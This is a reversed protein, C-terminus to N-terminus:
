GNNKIKGELEVIIKHWAEDNGPHKITIIEKGVSKHEFTLQYPKLGSKDWGCPNLLVLFIKSQNNSFRELAKPIEIDFVYSTAIFDPSLLFVIIDASELEDKISDDWRAGPEIMRDHWVDIMGERKLPELHTVFRRMFAGDKSSYSIFLKKMFYEKTDGRLFTKYDAVRYQKDQFIFVANNQLANKETENYPIFDIGSISIEKEYKCQKIVEEVKTEVPIFLAYDKQSNLSSITIFREAETQVFEIKFLDNVSAMKIVLGNKWFYNNSVDKILDEKFAFFIELITNKHIYGKLRYRLVPKQFSNLFLKVTDDATDPLNQPAIYTDALSTHPILLRYEEMLALLQTCDQGSKEEITKKNIIGTQPKSLISYMKETLEQPYLCIQQNSQYIIYGRNALFRCMDEVQEITDFTYDTNEDQLVINFLTQCEEITVLLKNRIGAENLKQVVEKRDPNERLEICFHNVFGFYASWTKEVLKDIIEEFNELLNNVGKSAVTGNNQRLDLCATSHILPEYQIFDNSNILTEGEKGRKTEVLIVNKNKIVDIPVVSSSVNTIEMLANTGFFNMRKKKMISNMADLWYVVPFNNNKETVPTANPGDSLYRDAETVGFSNSNKEWLLFYATDETFFLHHTDHYYEQGGFDFMRVTVNEGPRSIYNYVFKEFNMGHTSVSRTPLEKRDSTLFRALHTKGVNSNGLLILKVEKSKFAELQDTKTKELTAFYRKVANIGQAIVEASPISLPNGLVYIVPTVEVASEALSFEFGQNILKKLPTLDAIENNRLDISKLNASPMIKQLVKIGNSALNVATVSKLEFIKKFDAISNHSLGLYKLRTLPLLNFDSLSTIRNEGLDLWEINPPFAVASNIWNATLVLEKLNTLTSLNGLAAFKNLNLHLVELGALNEPEEIESLGNNGLYLKKLAPFRKPEFRIQSIENGDLDLTELKEMGILGPIEGLKLDHLALTKLNPFGHLQKVLEDIQLRNPQGHNATTSSSIYGPYVNDDNGLILEQLWDMQMIETPIHTLGTRGLDLRGTRESMERDIIQRWAEIQSSM